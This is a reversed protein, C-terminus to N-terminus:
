FDGATHRLDALIDVLAEARAPPLGPDAFVASNLATTARRALTRGAPTLTVVFARGDDPHVSRTVLGAQELRQVANTVSSQHVQLREGILSMPLSGRKSFTLLMLVEYRAFTIGFPKLATEVRKLAIAQARMLSTVATMGLAADAWGHDSWLQRAEAIPDPM